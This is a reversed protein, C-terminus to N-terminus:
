EKKMRSLYFKKRPPYSKRVPKGQPELGAGRWCKWVTSKSYGLRRAAESCNGRFIPYKSVICDKEKQPLENGEGVGRTMLEAAKWIKLVTTPSHKVQRGAEASNGGCHEYKNIISMIESEPLSQSKSGLKLGSIDVEPIALHMQKYRLLARSLGADFISLQGRSMGDYIEPHANFYALPNGHYNRPNHRHMQHWEVLMGIHYQVNSNESIKEESVRESVIQVIVNELRPTLGYISVIEKVSNNIYKNNNIM